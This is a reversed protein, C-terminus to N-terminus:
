FPWINWPKSKQYHVVPPTSLQFRAQLELSVREAIIPDQMNYEIGHHGDEGEEPTARRHKCALNPEPISWNSM